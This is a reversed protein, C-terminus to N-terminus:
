LNRIKMAQLHEVGRLIRRCEKDTLHYNDTIWYDQLYHQRLTIFEKGQFHIVTYCYNDFRQPEIKIKFDLPDEVFKRLINYVIENM